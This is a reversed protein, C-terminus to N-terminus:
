LCAAAFEADAALRNVTPRDLPWRLSKGVFRQWSNEAGVVGMPHESNRGRRRDGHHLAQGRAFRRSPNPM